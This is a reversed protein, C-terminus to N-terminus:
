HWASARSRVRSATVTLFLLALGWLLPPGAGTSPLAAPQVAPQVAPRPTERPLRGFMAIGQTTPRNVWQMSLAANPLFLIREANADANWADPDTGGLADGAAALSSWLQAACASLNGAAGVATSGCYVQSTPSKVTDGLVMSLDTWVQGYFGDQFASGGSSPANHFGVVNVSGVDGLAGDYISHIMPEWWADMIAVASGNDYNGDGDGDRRLAGNAVWDALLDRM